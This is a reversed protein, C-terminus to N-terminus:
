TLTGTRAGRLIPVKINTCTIRKLPYMERAVGTTPGDLLVRHDDAIDVIVAIKHV